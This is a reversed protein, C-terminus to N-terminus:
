SQPTPKSEVCIISINVRMFLPATSIEAGRKARGGSSAVGGQSNKACLIRCARNKSQARGFM